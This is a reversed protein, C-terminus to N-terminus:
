AAAEAALLALAVGAHVLVRDGPAVPSVLTVEVESAEGEPGECPALGDREAGVVRMEVGDDACTVCHGDPACVASPISTPVRGSV